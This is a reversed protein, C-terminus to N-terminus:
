QSRRRARNRKIIQPRRPLPAPDGQCIFAAWYFPPREQNRLRLQATRLAEARGKGNLLESYYDTMLDSTERDPVQWLSMVLTRAGALVFARRLGFVGEGVQVAGLGTECASLVVLETGNLNMGTVEEAVLLGDGANPPPVFAKARWNAGALALGSRLMPNVIAAANAYDRFGEQDSLFFGHTAIHLIWPSHVRRLDTELVADGFMPSVGLLKAIRQGELRTAPLPTFSTRGLDPSRLLARGAEGPAAMKLGLDFSPDAVVVAASPTSRTRTGIRLLDRGSSLYSMMFEDMLFGGEETSLGEFPLLNLDGDPALFLRTTGALSPRIPDFILRRLQKGMEEWDPAARKSRSGLERTKSVAGCATRWAAIAGDIEGADGLDILKPENPRAAHLVFAVYRQPKWRREGRAPVAAFDFIAVRLFEVLASDSPLAKAISDCRANGHGPAGHLAGRRSLETELREQLGKLETVDESSPLSSSPYGLESRALVDRVGVLEARIRTIEPDEDETRSQSAMADAVIGKRQLVIDMTRACSGSDSPPQEIMLSVLAYLNGRWRHMYELRQSESTLAFAADIWAREMDAQELMVDMADRSRKMAALVAARNARERGAFESVISFTEQLSEAQQYCREAEPLNGRSYALWGLSRWLNVEEQNGKEGSTSLIELAERILSEARAYYPEGPRGSAAGFTGVQELLSALNRLTSWLAGYGLRRRRDIVEEFLKRAAEFEGAKQLALALNNLVADLNDDEGGFKTLTAVSKRYFEIALPLNQLAEYLTGLSNLSVAVGLQDQNALNMQHARDLLESARVFNGLRLEVLGLADLASATTSDPADGSKLELARNLHQQAEAFQGLARLAVGLNYEAESCAHASFNGGSYVTLLRQLVDVAAGFKRQEGLTKSWSRLAEALVEEQGPSERKLEKLSQEFFACAANLDGMERRIRGLNVLPAASDGGVARAIALGESVMAEARDYEKKKLFLIGLGNRVEAAAAKAETGAGDLLQLAEVFLEQAVNLMGRERLVRAFNALVRAHGTDTGDGFVRLRAMEQHLVSTAEDHRASATLVEGLSSITALRDLLMEPRQENQTLKLEENYYRAAKAYRKALSHVTAVNHIGICLSDGVVGLKRKLKLSRVLFSEAAEWDNGSLLLTGVASLHSALEVSEGLAKEGLRAADAAATRAEERNGGEMLARLREQSDTLADGTSDVPTEALSSLRHLALQAEICTQGGAAAVRFEEVAEPVRGDTYHAEGIYYHAQYKQVESRALDLVARANSLGIIYEVLVRKWSGRQTRVISEGLRRAEEWRGCRQLSILFLLRLTPTWGRRGFEALASVCDQYDEGVYLTLCKRLAQEDSAEKAM